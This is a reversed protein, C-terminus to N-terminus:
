GHVCVVAVVCTEWLAVARVRASTAGVNYNTASGRRSREPSSWGIPQTTYYGECTRAPVAQAYVRVGGIRAHGGGVACMGTHQRGVLAM